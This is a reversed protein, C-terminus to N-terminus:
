MWFNYSGRVGRMGRTNELSSINTTHYVKPTFIELHPIELVQLQSPMSITLYLTSLPGM